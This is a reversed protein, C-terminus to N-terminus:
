FCIDLLLFPLHHCLTRDLFFSCSLHLWMNKPICKRAFHEHSCIDPQHHCIRGDVKKWWFDQHQRNKHCMNFNEFKWFHRIKRTSVLYEFIDLYQAMFIPWKKHLPKFDRLPIESCFITCFDENNRKIPWFSFEHWKRFNNRHGFIMKEWFEKLPRLYSLFHKQKSHIKFFICISVQIDSPTPEWINRM